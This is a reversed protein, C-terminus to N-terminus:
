MLKNIAITMIEGQFDNLIVHALGETAEPTILTTKCIFMYNIGKVVQSGAYLVPEYKVGLIHWKDFVAQVEEPMTCVEMAENMNWNGVM